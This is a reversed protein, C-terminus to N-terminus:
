ADIMFLNNIKLKLIKSRMEELAFYKKDEVPSLDFTEAIVVSFKDGCAFDIIRKNDFFPV